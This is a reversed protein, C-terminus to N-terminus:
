YDGFVEVAERGRCDIAGFFRKEIDDTSWNGLKVTYLDERCFCRAPGWRLLARRQYRVQGSVITEPYLDLYHYKNQGPQLFKKQYWQPVYHHTRAQQTAM